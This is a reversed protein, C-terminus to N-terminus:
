KPNEGGILEALAEVKLVVSAVRTSIESPTRRKELHTTLVPTDLIGLFGSM